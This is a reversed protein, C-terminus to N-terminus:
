AADQTQAIRYRIARNVRVFAPGNGFRRARRLYPRSLGIYRAADPERLAVAPIPTPMDTNM